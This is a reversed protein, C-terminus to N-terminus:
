PIGPCLVMSMPTPSECTASATVSASDLHDLLEVSKVRCPDNSMRRIQLLARRRTERLLEM